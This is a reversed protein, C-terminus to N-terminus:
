RRCRGRARARRLGAARSRRAPCRFSRVRRRCGPRPARRGREAHLEHWAPARRKRQRACRPSGAASGCGRQVGGIWCRSPAARIGAPSVEAAPSLPGEVPLARWRRRVPMAARLLRRSSRRVDGGPRPARFGREARRACRRRGSRGGASACSGCALAASGAAVWAPEARIPAHCRDLPAYPPDEPGEDQQEHQSRAPGGIEAHDAAPRQALDRLVCCSVSSVTGAGRPVIVSRLPM